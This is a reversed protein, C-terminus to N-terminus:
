CSDIQYRVKRNGVFDFAGGRGLVKKTQLALRGGVSPDAHPQEM